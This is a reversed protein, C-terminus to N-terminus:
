IILMTQLISYIQPGEASMGKCFKKDEGCKSTLNNLYFDARFKCMKPFFKLTIRINLGLCELQNIEKLNGRWFEINMEEGGYASCAWGM